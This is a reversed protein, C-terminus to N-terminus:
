VSGLVTAGLTEEIKVTAFGDARKRKQALAREQEVFKDWRGIMRDHADYNEDKFAMQATVYDVLRMHCRTPTSLTTSVTTLMAPEEYTYLKIQLASESPIPRLYLVGDWETYYQANGEQATGANYLTLADDDRFDIRQLKRGDVEVRKISIIAPTAPVSYTRTGATTTLSTDTGEIANCERALILEAEYILKFVEDQSWFTSSESNYRRRAATEVQAPTM